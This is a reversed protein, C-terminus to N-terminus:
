LANALELRPAQLCPTPLQWCGCLATCAGTDIKGLLRQGSKDIVASLLSSAPVHRSRAEGEGVSHDPVVGLPHPRCPSIKNPGNPGLSAGPTPCCLGDRESSWTFRITACFFFTPTMSGPLSESTNRDHLAHCVHARETQFRPCRLHLISRRQGASHGYGHINTAWQAGVVGWPLGCQRPCPAPTARATFLTQSQTARAHRPCPRNGWSISAYRRVARGQRAAEQVRAAARAAREAGGAEAAAGARGRQAAAPGAEAHRQRRTAGGRAARRGSPSVVASPGPRNFTFARAREPRMRLRKEWSPFQWSSKSGYQGTGSRDGNKPVM